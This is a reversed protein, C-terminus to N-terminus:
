IANSTTTGAFTARHSFDAKKEAKKREPGARFSAVDRAVAEYGKPRDVWSRLASRM